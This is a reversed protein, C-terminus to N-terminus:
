YLIEISSLLKFVNEFVAESVNMNAHVSLLANCVVAGRYRIGTKALDSKVQPICAKVVGLFILNGM